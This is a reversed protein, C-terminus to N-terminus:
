DGMDSTNVRGVGHRTGDVSCDIPTNSMGSSPAADYYVHRDSQRTLQFQM